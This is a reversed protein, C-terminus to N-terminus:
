YGRRHDELFREVEAALSQSDELPIQDDSPV